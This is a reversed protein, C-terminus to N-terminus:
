IYSSVFGLALYHHLNTISLSGANRPTESARNITTWVSRKTFWKKPRWYTDPLRVILSRVHKVSFRRISSDGSIGYKSLVFIGSRQTRSHLCLLWILYRTPEERSCTSNHIM